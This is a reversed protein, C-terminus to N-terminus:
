IVQLQKNQSKIQLFRQKPLTIVKIGYENKNIEM